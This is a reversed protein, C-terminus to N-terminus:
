LRSQTKARMHKNLFNASSTTSVEAEPIDSQHFNHWMGEEVDMSVDFGYSKLKRTMRAVESLLADRTGTVFHTPPCGKSFDGLIPSILPNAKNDNGIYRSVIPTISLEYKIEPSRGDLTYFSDSKKGTSDVLPSYLCMSKPLPVGEEHCKLILSLALTAGASDGLFCIKDPGHKEMLKKYVAFCDNLGSPFPHEPALRYDVAYAKMGTKASIPTFNQCLHEYPKGLCFGGGHLYMMVSEDESSQYGKPTVEVVNVGAIKIEKSTEVYKKKCINSFKITADRYGQRIIPWLSEDEIPGGVPVATKLIEQAEHSITNPIYPFPRPVNSLENTEQVSNQPINLNQTQIISGTGVKANDM